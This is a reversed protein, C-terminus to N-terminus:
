RETLKFTPTERLGCAQAKINLTGSNAGSVYFYYEAFCSELNSRIDFYRLKYLTTDNIAGIKASITSDNSIFARAKALTKDFKNLFFWSLLIVVLVGFLAAWFRSVRVPNHEIQMHM